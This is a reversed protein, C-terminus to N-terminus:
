RFRAPTIHFDLFFELSSRSIKRYHLDYLFESFLNKDKHIVLKHDFLSLAAQAFVYAIYENHFRAKVGMTKLADPSPEISFPKLVSLWYLLVSIERHVYPSVSDIKFGYDTFKSLHKKTTSSLQSANDIRAKLRMEGYIDRSYKMMAQDLLVVNCNPTIKVKDNVIINSYIDKLVKLVVRIFENKDRLKLDGTSPDFEYGGNLDQQYVYDWLVHNSFSLSM